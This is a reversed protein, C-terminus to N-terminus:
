PNKSLRMDINCEWTDLVLLLLALFIRATISIYEKGRLLLVPPKKESLIM